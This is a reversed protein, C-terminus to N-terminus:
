CPYPASRLNAPDTLRGGAARLRIHDVETAKGECGVLRLECLPQRQLQADRAVRSARDQWKAARRSASGGVGVPAQLELAARLVTGARQRALAAKDVRRM